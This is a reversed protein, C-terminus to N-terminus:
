LPQKYSEDLQKKVVAIMAEAGNIEMITALSAVVEGRVRCFDDYTKVNDEGKTSMFAWVMKYAVTEMLHEFYEKFEDSDAIKKLKNLAKTQEELEKKALESRQKEDVNLREAMNPM